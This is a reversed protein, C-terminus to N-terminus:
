KGRGPPQRELLTEFITDQLRFMKKAEKTSKEHDYGLLHLVGHIVMYGLEIEYSLKHEKAQNRLVSPCLVLEGLDEPEIPEFSLVDTPKNKNRYQKNLAKIEDANVFALILQKGKVKLGNKELEKTLAKVWNKLFAEPLKFKRQNVFLLKM